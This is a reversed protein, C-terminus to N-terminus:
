VHGLLLEVVIIVILLIATFRPAAPNIPRANRGLGFYQGTGHLLLLGTPVTILGFGWLLVPSFGLRILEGADGIGDISGFSIYAGNAILCFGAFFRTLYVQKWSVGRCILWAIVPLLCGAVPGGWCVTRPAPNPEVDTRSIALPHLVVSTVQGDTAVACLLHGGEHVAMMLFWCLPILTSILLFQDAKKM